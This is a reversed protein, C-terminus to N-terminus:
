LNSASSSHVVKNQRGILWLLTRRAFSTARAESDISYCSQNEEYNVFESGGNEWKGIDMESISSRTDFKGNKAKLDDSVAAPYRLSVARRSSDAVAVVNPKEKKGRLWIKSVSFSEKRSKVIASGGNGSCGLNEVSTNIANDFGALKFDRKSEFDCESMALRHGPALSLVCKKESSQKMISTRIPVQLSSSEDMVYSFSGMSFCRRDDINNTRSSGEGHGVVDGDMNRFKGLKVTVVKEMGYGELTSDPIPNENSILDGSKRTFDTRTSGFESGGLRSNATIVSSTRGVVSATTGEREPVIERSSESGSELLASMDNGKKTEDKLASM